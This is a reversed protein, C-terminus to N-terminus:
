IGCNDNCIVLKGDDFTTNDWTDSINSFWKICKEIPYKIANNNQILHKFQNNAAQHYIGHGYSNPEFGLYCCPYIDGVSSIYIEKTRKIECKIKKPTKNDVIDELLVESNKRHDISYPYNINENNHIVNILEGKKNYVNLDHRTNHIINFRKFGLDMIIKKIEDRQHTNYNFNITNCVANGGADVFTSANSLITKLSTNQRYKTHTDHLGDICFGITIGLRGLKKWFDNTRGSGNTSVFVQINPNQEIIWHIIDASDPNMIFDGFNGNIRIKKIQNLFNNRFITKIENLTLNREIYGDNYPYGYFNRPCGPCRANCLSSLELHVQNIEHFQLM